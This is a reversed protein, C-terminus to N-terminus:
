ELQKITKKREREKEAAWEYTKNEKEAVTSNLKKRRSL